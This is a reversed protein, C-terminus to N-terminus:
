PCGQGLLCAVFFTVDADDIVGNADMDACACAPTTPLGNLYCVVMASIDAGDRKTDANLDGRLGQCICDVPGDECVDLLGNANCDAAPDAAIECADPIINDNCDLSDIVVADLHVQDIMWGLLINLFSTRSDFHFALTVTQGEYATLDVTRVRWVNVPVGSSTGSVDDVEVGNVSVWAWDRGSVNSNGGEGGYASCYTLTIRQVGTPLQVAPATLVGANAAGTNFNCSGDLGYYAWRVPNCNNERPCASTTHWLGTASWGTPLGGGEFNESLLVHTGNLECEDPVQNTDCDQSTGDFIDCIDTISNDNCDENPECVDPVLNQNCDELEGLPPVECEDPILNQNCDGSTGLFVDCLDPVGNNNCDLLGGYECEDPVGNANCDQSTNSAIDCADAIGNGNCDPECEDPVGNSNCDESTSDAIDDADPVGNTNCDDVLIRMYYVDQEGNFTAAYALHVGFLDSEMDYYDGLKNQNPFGVLSDFQPTLPTNATWSLGGDTSYSYYVRSLMQNPDDRTDNWVIDIRGNPAVSMTGFWQWAGNNLADDNIRVPASWTQGGDTSRSFMVDMPDGGPPDVSACLYAHGRRSGFSQDIAIWVQGLLGDPNPGGGGRLAGGLLNGTVTMNFTPAQAPDKANDSRAVVFNSNTFTPFDVGAVYVEGDPGVAVTGFVAPLPMPVPAEWSLGHNTSRCFTNSNTCTAAFSWAQYLHGSGLGFTRVDVDMWAKDGGHAAVQTPWSMGQDASLYVDICFTSRLSNYFFRGFGDSCLVPDSRFVGPQVVGPFTWTQGGDVSFGFGAQRFNSTITDFQRWGIAMRSPDSPDIAISPENAADGVINLGQSDVNVQVSGAPARPAAVEVATRPRAIYSDEQRELHPSDPVAPKKASDQEAGAAGVTMLVLGLFTLICLGAIVARSSFMRVVGFIDSECSQFSRVDQGGWGLPCAQRPRRISIRGVLFLCKVLFCTLIALM